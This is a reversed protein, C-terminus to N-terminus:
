TRVGADGVLPFNNSPESDIVSWDEHDSTAESGELEMATIDLSGEGRTISAPHHAGQRGGEDGKGEEGWKAAMGKDDRETCNLRNRMFITIEDHCLRM